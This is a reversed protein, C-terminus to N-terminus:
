SFFAVLHELPPVIPPLASEYLRGNRRSRPHHADAPGPFISFIYYGPALMHRRSHVMVALGDRGPGLRVALHPHPQLTCSFQTQHVHFARPVQCGHNHPHRDDLSPLYQETVWACSSTFLPPLSRAVNTGVIEWGVSLGPLLRLSTDISVRLAAWRSKMRRAPV